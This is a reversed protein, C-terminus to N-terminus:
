SKHHEKQYEVMRLSVITSVTIAMYFMGTIAQAYVFFQAINEKPSIDGYGVTTLTIFSFYSVEPFNYAWHVYHMGNFAEPNYTLILLYIFTWILGLLLFAYVSGYLLNETVVKSSFIQKMTLVFSKIFYILFISHQIYEAITPNIHNKNILLLAILFIFVYITKKWSAKHHQSKIDVFFILVIIGNLTHHLIESHINQLLSSVFLLVVVSIFLYYFNNGSDIHINKKM